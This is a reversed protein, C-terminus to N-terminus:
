RNAPSPASTDARVGNTRVAPATMALTGAKTGGTASGAYCTTCVIRREGISSQPVVGIPPRGPIVVRAHDLCVGAGCYACGGTATMPLGVSPSLSCELCNM